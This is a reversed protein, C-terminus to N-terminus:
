GYYSAVKKIHSTFEETSLASKMANCTKCCPAVNGRVYGLSNDIRDIGNSAFGKSHNSAKNGCYLCPALVIGMFQSPDIDWELGREKARLYYLRYLAGAGHGWGKFTYLPYLGKTTYKRKKM